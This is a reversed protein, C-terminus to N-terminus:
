ITNVQGQSEICTDSLFQQILYARAIIIKGSLPPREELNTDISGVAKRSKIPPNALICIVGNLDNTASELLSKMEEFDSGVVYVLDRTMEKLSSLTLKFKQFFSYTIVVLKCMAPIQVNYILVNCMRM